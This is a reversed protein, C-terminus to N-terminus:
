NLVANLKDVLEAINNKHMAWAEQFEADKDILLKPLMESIYVNWDMTSDFQLDDSRIRKSFTCDSRNTYNHEITLCVSYKDNFVSGYKTAVTGDPLVNGAHCYGVNRIVRLEVRTNDQWYSNSLIYLGNDSGYKTEWSRTSYSNISVRPKSTDFDAGNQLKKLIGGVSSNAILNDMAKNMLVLMAKNKKFYNKTM